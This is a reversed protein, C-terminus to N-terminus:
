HWISSSSGNIWWAVWALMWCCMNPAWFHKKFSHTCTHWTAETTDSQAVRHITAGGPEETWPSERPLFVPIPQWARRWPIKRVWLDFGRRTDGVNAPPNKVVLAVHFARQFISLWKVGKLNLKRMSLIFIIGVHFCPSWQPALPVIWLILSNM